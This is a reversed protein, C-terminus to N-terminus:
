RLTASRMGGKLPRLEGLETSSKQIDLRAKELTRLMDEMDVKKKDGSVDRLISKLTQLTKGMSEIKADYQDCVVAVAAEERVKSEAVKAELSAIKEATSAEVDQQAKKRCAGLAASCPQVPRGSALWSGARQETKKCNLGGEERGPM